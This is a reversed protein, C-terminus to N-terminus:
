YNNKVFLWNLNEVGLSLSETDHIDLQNLIKYFEENIDLYVNKYLKNGNSTLSINYARGDLSDKNKVIIDKNILNSLNRSLTSIDLSLKNALETQSIGDYPISVICLLQSLTLNYSLAVKRIPKISNIHLDLILESLKM